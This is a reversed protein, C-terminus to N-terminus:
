ILDPRNEGIGVSVVVQVKANDLVNKLVGKKVIREGAFVDFTRSIDPFEILYWVGVWKVALTM